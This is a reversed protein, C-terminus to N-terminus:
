GGIEQVLNEGIFEFREVTGEEKEKGVEKEEFSKLFEEPSM